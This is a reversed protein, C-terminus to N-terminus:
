STETVVAENVKEGNVYVNYGRYSRDSVANWSLTTTEGEYISEASLALEQPVNFTTTFSWVDGYTTGSTNRTNVQWFYNKNNYLDYLIHGIELNNTWDILVDKPPFTTGLLVQYEVTYAGFTWSLTPNQINQAYNAPTPQSPKEPAPITEANANVTFEGTSSAAFYYKGAPLVMANIGSGRKAPRNTLRVDDVFIMDQGTCNFHRIAFYLEQGAYEGLAITKKAWGELGRTDLSEEFITTFNEGDTSIAVGYYEAPYAANCTVYFSFESNETISYKEKTALYNDPTLAEDWYAHYSQSVASFLSNYGFTDYYGLLDISNEWGCNDGDADISRFIGLNGYDEFDCFFYPVAKEPAMNVVPGNYNNDAMPGGAGAFDATYVAVKGNEGEVNATFLVDNNFNLEYVVDAGDAESGPLLYNDYATELNPTATFPFSIAEATEFVDNAAPTYAFATMDVLQMSRANGYSIGIQGNIQGEGEGHKVDIVIPQAKTITAPMDIKEVDFYPNTTEIAVVNINGARSGFSIEAPRMWAGNPRAGLDLSGPKIVMPDYEGQISINFMVQCNHYASAGAYPVNYGSQGAFNDLSYMTYDSGKYKSRAVSGTEYTLFPIASQWSGTQDFVTVALNGGEFMFPEAFEITLLGDQANAYNVTGSFVLDEETVTAWDYSGDYSEKDTNSLYVAYTRVFTSPNALKFSISSIEGVLNQMEDSTYIQQSFSYKYYEHVPLVQQYSTGEGVNVEIQTQANLSFLGFLCMMTFLFLRKM